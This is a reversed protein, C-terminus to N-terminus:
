RPQYRDSATPLTHEPQQVQHQVHGLQAGHQFCNSFADGSGFGGSEPVTSLLKM